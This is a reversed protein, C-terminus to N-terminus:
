SLTIFELRNGFPDLTYFRRRPALKTDWTVPYHAQTLRQVLKDLNECVFAPHAKQAPTFNADVGYHLQRGDPLAFWVGGRHILTDPKRIETLELIGVYFKRAADEEGSPMALLLHDIGSIM